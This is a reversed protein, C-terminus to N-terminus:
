SYQLDFLDINRNFIVSFEKSLLQHLSMGDHLYVWHEGTWDYRKPGSTPSSLWIQKNPTQKNIVYTGHDGGVKVTLVGSSFVVDYDTGTFAEDTLDEFYEALSDLTEDALKEYAAESLESIQVPASKQRHSSLHFNRRWVDSDVRTALCQNPLLYIPHLWNKTHPRGGLIHSLSRAQKSLNRMRQFTAMNLQKNALNCVLSYIYTTKSWFLM